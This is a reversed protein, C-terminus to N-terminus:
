RDEAPSPAGEICWLRAATRIYLRRGIPAPSAWLAEGLDNEAIRRFAREAAVVTIKGSVDPFYVAGGAAIPSAMCGRGMLQQSWLLEGTAADLCHADRHASVAFLLGNCLVPSAVLQGRSKLETAWLLPAEGRSLKSLRLATVARSTALFVTDRDSVVSAVQEGHTPVPHRWLEKGSQLGLGRLFDEKGAGDWAWILLLKKGDATASAPTRHQGEIGPWPRLEATWARRGTQADLAAVYPAEAQTGTVILRGDALLLSPGAGHVCEFPLARNTWLLKGDLDACMAGASGFWAYVREGDAVPTPTAPSNRRSLVPKPGRLGEATWRVAGTDRDLCVITRVLEKAPLLRNRAALGAPALAIFAIALWGPLLAVRRALGALHAAVLLLGIAAPLAAVALLESAYRGPTRLDFYQPEPRALLAIAALGLQAVGAALRVWRGATAAPLICAAGVLCSLLWLEMREEANLEGREYRAFSALSALVLAALALWLGAIAAVRGKTRPPRPAPGRLSAAAGLIALLATAGVLAISAAARLAEGRGTICATTLFVKDGVVIPSSHGEGPIPTKWRVNTEPSWHTPYDGPEAQGERELGRWGPWEGAGGGAAPSSLLFSVGLTLLLAPRM